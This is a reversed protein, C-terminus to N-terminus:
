RCVRSNRGDCPSRTAARGRWPGAAPQQEVEAAVREVQEVEQEPREGVHLARGRAEGFPRDLVDDDHAEPRRAAASPEALQFKAPAVRLSTMSISPVSARSTIGQKPSSGRRSSVGSPLTSCNAKGWGGCMWCGSMWLMTSSSSPRPPAHGLVPSDAARVLLTM